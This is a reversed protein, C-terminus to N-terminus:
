SKPTINYFSTTHFIAKQINRILSKIYIDITKINPFNRYPWDLYNIRM